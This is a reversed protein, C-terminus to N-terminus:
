ETFTNDIYRVDTASTLKPKFPPKIQKNEIMKWDVGAFWPHAKV